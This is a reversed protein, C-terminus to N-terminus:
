RRPKTLLRRLSRYDGHDLWGIKRAIHAYRADGKLGQARAQKDAARALRRKDALEIRSPSFGEGQRQIGRARHLRTILGLNLDRKFDLSLYAPIFIQTGYPTVVVSPKLLLPRGRGVGWLCYKWCLLDFCAQFRQARTRFKAGGDRVWNREPILTRHIIEKTSTERPFLKRLARWERRFHPENKLRAQFEEYKKQSNLFPEFSGAFLWQESQRILSPNALVLPQFGCIGEAQSALVFDAILQADSPLRKASLATLLRQAYNEAYAPLHSGSQLAQFCLWGFAEAVHQYARSRSCAVRAPLDQFLFELQPLLDAVAVFPLTEIQSTLEKQWNASTVGFRSCWRIVFENSGNRRVRSTSKM